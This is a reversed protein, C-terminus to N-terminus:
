GDAVPEPWEFVFVQAGQDQDKCAPVGVALDLTGDGDYDGPALRHQDGRLEGQCPFLVSDLKQWGSSQAPDRVQIVYQSDLALLALRGAVPWSQVQARSNEGTQLTTLPDEWTAGQTEFIAVQLGEDGYASWGPLAFEPVGNGDSDGLAVLGTQVSAPAPLLDAPTQQAEYGPGRLPEPISAVGGSASEDRCAPSLAIVDPLGDGSLDPSVQVREGMMTDSRNSKYVSGLDGPDQTGTAQALDAGSFVWVEGARAPQGTLPAGVVLDQLGDGNLDGTALDTGFLWVDARGDIRLAEIFARGPDSWSSGQLIWVTGRTTSPDAIALEGKGDGDLDGLPLIARHGPVAPEECQGVPITWQAHPLPIEFFPADLSDGMRLGYLVAPTGEESSSSVFGLEDAGDGDLDGLNFVAEGAFPRGDGEVTWFALSDARAPEYSTDGQCAFICILWLM